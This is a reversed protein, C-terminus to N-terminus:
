WCSAAAASRPIPGAGPAGSRFSVSRGAVRRPTEDRAVGARSRSRTPCPRPPARPFRCAHPELARPCPGGWLCAPVMVHAPQLKGSPGSGVQPTPGQPLVTPACHISRTRRAKSPQVGHCSVSGVADLDPPLTRLPGRRRCGARGPSTGRRRGYGSGTSRMREVPRYTRPPRPRHHAMTDGHTRSRHRVNLGGVQDLAVPRPDGSERARDAHLRRLGFHRLPARCKPGRGLRAGM